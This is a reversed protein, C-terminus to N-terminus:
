SVPKGVCKNWQDVMYEDMEDACTFPRNCYQIINEHGFHTDSIFWPEKM